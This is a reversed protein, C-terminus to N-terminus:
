RLSPTDSVGSFIIWLFVFLVFLDAYNPQRM